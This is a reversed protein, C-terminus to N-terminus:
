DSEATSESRPDCLTRLRQEGLELILKAELDGEQAVMLVQTAQECPVKM